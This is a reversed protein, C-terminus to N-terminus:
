PVFSLLGRPQTAHAVTGIINMSEYGQFAPEEKAGESATLRESNALAARRMRRWMTRMVVSAFEPCGPPEREQVSM